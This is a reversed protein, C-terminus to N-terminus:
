MTCNQVKILIMKGDYVIIEIDSIIWWTSNNWAIGLQVKIPFDNLKWDISNNWAISNNPVESYICIPTKRKNTSAKRKNISM